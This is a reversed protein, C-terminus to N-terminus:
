RKQFFQDVIFNAFAFASTFAPSIANHVHV